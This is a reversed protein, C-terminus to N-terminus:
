FTASWRFNDWIVTMPNLGDLTPDTSYYQVRWTRDDDSTAETDVPMDPVYGLQSALLAAADEPTAGEGMVRQVQAPDNSLLAPGLLALYTDISGEDDAPDSAVLDAPFDAAAAGLAVGSYSSEFDFPLPGNFDVTITDFTALTAPEPVIGFGFYRIAGGPLTYPLTVPEAAWSPTEGELPAAEANSESLYITPEQATGTANVDISSITVPWPSNNRVFGAQTLMPAEASGVATTVTKGGLALGTSTGLALVAVVGGAIFLLFVVLTILVVKRNM